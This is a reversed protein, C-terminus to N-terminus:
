QNTNVKDCAPANTLNRHLSKKIKEDGTKTGIGYKDRLRALKREMLPYLLLLFIVNSVAYVATFPLSSAAAALFGTLSIEDSLSFATWLDMILSFGIGALIGYGILIWKKSFLGRRGISGAFFGILGWALMQFPTWPGQGFFLNSLLATMSGTLFGIEPGFIAGTIVTFATVPKFAPVALFLVRGATSVASMAAAVVLDRARPRRREFRLFFPLCALAAMLCSVAPYSRPGAWVSLLLLVPFMGFITLRMWTLRTTHM